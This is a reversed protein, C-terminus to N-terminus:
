PKEQTKGEPGYLLLFGEDSGVHVGDRTIAPATLSDGARRSWLTRGSQLDLMLLSGESTVVVKDAAVAPSNPSGETAVVWLTKGSSRDLCYVRGDSSGAVIRNSTVAPTTFVENSACRSGWSVRAGKIDVCVVSGDRTGVFAHNGDVAAGAAMPGVEGPTVVGLSKGTDLSVLHVASDCAGFVAIGAGIAPPTDCRGVPDAAWVLKGDDLSLRKLIGDSRSMVLVGDTGGDKGPIWNPSGLIDDGIKQKWKVAGSAADYAHLYGQDSGALVVGSVCLPPTSFSESSETAPKAPKPLFASWAKGGQRDFALLGGKEVVVIIREGCAVPPAVAPADLRIRWKEELRAPLVVASVGRLGADGHYIPWDPSDQAGAVLSGTVPVLGLCALVVKRILSYDNNRM